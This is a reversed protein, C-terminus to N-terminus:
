FTHIVTGVGQLIITFLILGIIALAPAYKLGDRFKGGSLVAVFISALVSNSAIIFYAMNKMFDPEIAIKGGALGVQSTIEKQSTGSFATTQVQIQTLINLFQVSVALLMPSAILVVFIIFLTYMRTSSVLEKKLYSTHKIDNASAEILQALKGGSRMAQAFFKATDALVKSDIANAIDKLADSFSELGLSKQTAIQIQESLPGFEPRVASRFAYFPTMGSKLNNGVLFLFDPLIAEVMRRRGDIVYAIHLYSIAIGVSFGLLGFLFMFLLQVPLTLKLGANFMNNLLPFLVFPILFFIMGLMISLFLRTGVWIRDNEKSGAYKLWVRVHTDMISRPVLSSFALFVGTLM